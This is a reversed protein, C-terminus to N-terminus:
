YSNFNKYIKNLAVIIILILILTYFSYFLTVLSVLSNIGLASAVGTVFEPFITLLAPFFVPPTLLVLQPATILSKATAWILFCQLSSGFVISLVISTKSPDYM